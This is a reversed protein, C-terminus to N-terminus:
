QLALSLCGSPTLPEVRSSGKNSVIIRCDDARTAVKPAPVPPKAYLTMTILEGVHVSAVPMGLPGIIRKFNPIPTRDAQGVRGIMVWVRGGTQLHNAARFVDNTWDTEPIVDGKRSLFFNMMYVPLEDSALIIDGPKMDKRLEAAALDWRPKTEAHYYPALNVAALLVIAAVAGNQWRRPLQNIGLGVFVLFPVSSWLLYRPMWLPKFISIVLILLPPLAAVLVLAPMLSRSPAVDLRAQGRQRRRLYLLGLLALVVLVIGFGPAAAPFLHFNILRSVRMLYLTSLVSVFSHMTMDPVWNTANMMKGRTYVDMAGFWPLTGALVVAQAGLWRLLFRRREIQKDRLLIVIAGINASILWFFATSLVNLGGLTGLTYIVWPALKAGPLGFARSAGRPDRALQVFGLLGIAMMLIVFTYSRAEQGYQVQLPSLALLLGAVLGARWGGITRVILFLVGCTAAGFVASPLRLVFETMGYHGFLSALAFYSPLHHNSLSDIVMPWFPLSSRNVTTVEDLWFPMFDIRYFRAFFGVLSVALFLATAIRAQPQAALWATARGRFTLDPEDSRPSVASM